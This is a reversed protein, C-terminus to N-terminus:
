GLAVTIGAGFMRDHLEIAAPVASKPIDFVLKVTATNGPNIKDWVAIDNDNLAIQATTDTEFERQKEDLLIQNSPSFSTAKNGDNRVRVTVVVFQGQAQQMLFSDGVQSLGTETGTVTFTLSGDKAPANMPILEPRTTTGTTSPRNPRNETTGAIANDSPSSASSRDGPESPTLAVVAILVFFLVVVLAALGGLIWPYPSTKRPKAQQPVPGPPYGATYYHPGSTNPPPTYRPNNDPPVPM